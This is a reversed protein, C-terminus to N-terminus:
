FRRGSLDAGDQQLLYNIIELEKPDTIRRPKQRYSKVDSIKGQLNQNENEKTKYTKM